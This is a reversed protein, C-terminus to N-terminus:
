VSVKDEVGLGARGHEKPIAANAREEEGQEWKELMRCSEEPLGIAIAGGPGYGSVFGIWDDCPDSSVHCSWPYAYASTLGFV